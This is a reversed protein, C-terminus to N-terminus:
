RAASHRCPWCSGPRRLVQEVIRLTAPVDMRAVRRATVLPALGVAAVGVLVALLITTPSVSATMAVDPLTQPLQGYVMARTLLLGLTVGFATGLAGIMAREATSLGLVLRHSFGFAPMTAHERRREEATISASNVAILLALVLTVAATVGLVGTLMVLLGSMRDVLDTPTAVATVGPVAAIARRVDSPDAGPSPIGLRHDHASV